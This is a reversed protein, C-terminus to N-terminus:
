RDIFRAMQGDWRLMRPAPVVRARGVQRLQTQQQLLAQHQAAELGLDEGLQGGLLALDDDDGGVSDVCAGFSCQRGGRLIQGFPAM